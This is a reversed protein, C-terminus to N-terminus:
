LSCSINQWALFIFKNKMNKWTGNKVSQNQKSQEIQIRKYLLDYFNEILIDTCTKLNLECIVNNKYCKEIDAKEKLM